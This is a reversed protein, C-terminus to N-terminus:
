WSARYWGTSCGRSSAFRGAPSCRSPFAEAALRENLEGVLTRIEDGRNQAYVGLQHPTAVIASTGDDAALRAMALADDWNKAGDDIGPLVHCHIDVFPKICPITTSERADDGPCM